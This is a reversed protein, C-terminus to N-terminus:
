SADRFSRADPTEVPIMDHRVLQIHEELLAHIVDSSTLLEVEKTRSALLRTATHRLADDVCGPHVMLETVGPRLTFLLITEIM